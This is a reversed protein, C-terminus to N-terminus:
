IPPQVLNELDKSATSSQTGPRPVNLKSCSSDSATSRTSITPAHGALDPVALFPHARLQPKTEGQQQRTSPEFNRDQETRGPGFDGPQTRSWPSDLEQRAGATGPIIGPEIPGSRRESTRTGDGM